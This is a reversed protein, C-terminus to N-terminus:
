LKSASVLVTEIEEEIKQLKQARQKNINDFPNTGNGFVYEHLEKKTEATLQLRKLGKTELEVRLKAEGLTHMKQLLSEM